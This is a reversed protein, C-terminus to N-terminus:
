SMVAMRQTPAVVDFDMVSAYVGLQSGLAVALALLARQPAAPFAAFTFDADQLCRARHLFNRPVGDSDCRGINALGYWTRLFREFRAPPRIETIFTVWASSENLLCHAQGPEVSLSEGALLTRWSGDVCIRLAGDLVEIREQIQRHRHMPSGAAHPPLDFQVELVEGEADTGRHLVLMRDGTVDNVIPAWSLEANM